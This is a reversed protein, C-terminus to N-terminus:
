GLLMWLAVLALVLAFLTNLRRASSPTAFIRMLGDGALTWITFAVFNNLTFNVSIAIILSWNSGVGPPMFQSFM